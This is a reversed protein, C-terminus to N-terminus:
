PRSSLGLAPLLEALHHAPVDAHRATTRAITVRHALVADALPPDGVSVSAEDLVARAHRALRRSQRETRGGTYLSVLRRGPAGAVWSTFPEVGRYLADFLVVHDIDVGGHALLALATEFGASHALLSVSELRDISTVGLMPELAGLLEILFARFRGDDAFRGPSGDRRLFALQPIVFLADTGAEDFRDALAWGERPPAGDRCPTPGASVLVRACGSWGHLFVVLRLPRRPDFSPGAHVIVSPARPEDFPASALTLEM